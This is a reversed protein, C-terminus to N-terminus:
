LAIRKIYWLITVRYIKIGEVIFKSNFIIFLWLLSWKHDSLMKFNTADDVAANGNAHNEWVHRRYTNFLVLYIFLYFLVLYFGCHNPVKNNKPKLLNTVRQTRRMVHIYQSYCVLWCYQHLKITVFWIIYVNTM